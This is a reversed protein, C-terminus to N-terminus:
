ILTTCISKWLFSIAQMAIMLVDVVLAFPKKQKARPFHAEEKLTANDKLNELETNGLLQHFVM